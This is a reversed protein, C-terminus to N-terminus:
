EGDNGEEADLARLAAHLETKFCARETCGPLLAMEACNACDMDNSCDFERAAEVVGMLLKREARLAQVTAIRTTGQLVALMLRDFETESLM